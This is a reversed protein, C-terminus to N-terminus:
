FFLKRKVRKREGLLNAVPSCLGHERHLDAKVLHVYRKTMQLDSHGLQKQVHFASAGNRLQMIASTHRLSYPTAKIGVEQALKNVRHSWTSVPMERGDQSAFVPVDPGWEEPRVQLLKKIVKATQASIVVTRAQKTKSISGPIFVELSRLDFHEPLLKLAEGPRIGCDLQFLILAYDRLGSYRSTDIGALLAKVAREDLSRPRGEDKRKPIGELPNGVLYGESVSWRFFAGLYERRLNYSSNSMQTLGAFHKNVAAKLAHYDPWADPFDAFFKNLHYFYDNITREARGQARKVLLFEEVAELWNPASIKVSLKRVKPM